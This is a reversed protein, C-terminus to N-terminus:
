QILKSDGTKRIERFYCPIITARYLQFLPCGRFTLSSLLLTFPTFSTNTEFGMFCCFIIASVVVHLTPVTMTIWFSQPFKKFRRNKCLSTLAYAFICCYRLKRIGQGFIVHSSLWYSLLLITPLTELDGSVVPSSLLICCGSFSFNNEFGRFYCPIIACHM